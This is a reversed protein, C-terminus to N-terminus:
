ADGRIRKRHRPQQEAEDQEERPGDKKREPRFLSEFVPLAEPPFSILPLDQKAPKNESDVDFWHLQADVGSAACGPCVYATMAIKLTDDDNGGDDFRELQGEAFDKQLLEITRARDGDMLVMRTGLDRKEKWRNCDVCFPTGAIIVGLICCMFLVGLIEIGWYIFTGVYGLNIGGGRGARGLLQVGATAQADIFQGFTLGAERAGSHVYDFYHMAAMAVIGGLMGAVVGFWPSTVKGAHMGLWGAMVVVVGIAIPFVFILYFWQGIFSALWGSAVGAVLVLVLVLMAGLAPINGSAQHPEAEFSPLRPPEYEAAAPVPPPTQRARPVARANTDEAEPLRFKHRCQPCAILVGSKDDGARLSKGCNPCTCQIM